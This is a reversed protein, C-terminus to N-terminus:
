ALKIAVVRLRRYDITWGGDRYMRPRLRDAVASRAERQRDETMGAFLAGGFMVLWDQLGDEGEARTPRDFLTALRVEFGQRELVATYEGVSPYYWPLEIPGAVERVAELVARTNGHGGLEAVFRGGPKLARFICAAAAGADKVWHLVANSFVADNPKDLEFATADAVLFSIDPFNHKAEAIMEPSRDIGTVAAGTAAIRATLQGTGCGLDLISEHPQPALLDILVEGYQWVYSHRAQYHEPNWQPTHM